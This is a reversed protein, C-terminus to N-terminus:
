RLVTTSRKQEFYSRVLSPVDKFMVLLPEWSDGSEILGKWSVLLQFEGNGERLDKILDIFEAIEEM